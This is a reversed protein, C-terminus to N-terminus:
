PLLISSPATEVEADDEDTDEMARRYLDLSQELLRAPVPDSVILGSQSALSGAAALATRAMGKEGIEHLIYAMEELRYKLASRREETYHEAIWNEKLHRERDLVQADTLILPSDEMTDFSELLPQIDEPAIVWSIFLSHSFLAELQNDTLVGSPIEEESVVEYAPPREPLTVDNLLRPRIELYDEPADATKELTRAYAQETVAAAHPLAANVMIGVVRDRFLANLEKMRKKSYAGSQFELMGLEDNVIGMAVDFGTPLQPLALFVARNGTGDIGSLAALPTEKPAPRFIREKADHAPDSSVSIGKKQLRFLAKKVAKRVDKESFVRGLAKLVPITEKCDAPLRLALSRAIEPTTVKDVLLAPEVRELEDLLSSVLSEEEPSLPSLGSPKKKPKKKRRTM